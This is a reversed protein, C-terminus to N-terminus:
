VQGHIEEVMDDLTRNYGSDGTSVDERYYERSGEEAIEYLEQLREKDRPSSSHKLSEVEAQVKRIEASLRDYAERSKEFKIHLLGYVRTLKKIERDPLNRLREAYSRLCDRSASLVMDGDLYISKFSPNSDNAKPKAMAQVKNSYISNTSNISQIKM